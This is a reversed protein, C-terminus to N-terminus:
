IVARRNVTVAVTDNVTAVAAHALPGDVGDVALVGAAEAGWDGVDAVADVLPGGFIVSGYAGVISGDAKVVLISL